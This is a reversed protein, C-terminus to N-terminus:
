ERYINKFAYAAMGFGFAEPHSGSHTDTFLVSATFEVEPMFSAFRGM